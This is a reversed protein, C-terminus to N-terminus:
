KDRNILEAALGLSFVGLLGTIAALVFGVISDVSASMGHVSVGSRRILLADRESIVSASILAIGYVLNKLTRVKM